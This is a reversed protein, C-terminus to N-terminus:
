REGGARTGLLRAQMSAIARARGDATRRRRLTLLWPFLMLNLMPNAGGPAHAVLAEVLDDVSMETLRELRQLRGALALRKAILQEAVREGPRWGAVLACSEAVHRAVAAKATAGRHWAPLRALGAGAATDDPQGDLYHGIRAHRQHRSREDGGEDQDDGADTDHPQFAVAAVGADEEHEPFELEDEETLGASRSRRRRKPAKASGKPRPRPAPRHADVHHAPGHAAHHAHHGEHPLGEHPGPAVPSAPAAAVPTDRAPLRAPLTVPAPPTALTRRVVM